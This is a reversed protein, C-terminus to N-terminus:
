DPEGDDDSDARMNKVYDETSQKGTFNPNRGSLEETSPLRPEVRPLAKLTEGYIAAQANSLCSNCLKVLLAGGRDPINAVAAAKGCSWCVLDPYTM